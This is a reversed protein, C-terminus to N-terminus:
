EACMLRCGESIKREVARNTTGKAVRYGGKPGRLSARKAAKCAECQEDDAVAAATPAVSMTKSRRYGPKGGSYGIQMTSQAPTNASDSAASVQEVAAMPIIFLTLLFLTPIFKYM